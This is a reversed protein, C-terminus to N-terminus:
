GESETFWICNQGQYTGKKVQRERCLQVFETQVLKQLRQNKRIKSPTSGKGRVMWVAYADALAVLDDGNLNARVMATRIRQKLTSLFKQTILEGDDRKSTAPQRPQFEARLSDISFKAQHRDPM